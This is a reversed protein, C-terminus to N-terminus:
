LCCGNLVCCVLRLVEIAKQLFQAITYGKLVTLDRRHGSGDWYSFAIKIPEKKMLEQKVAWEARLQERM